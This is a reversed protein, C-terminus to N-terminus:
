QMRRLFFLLLAFNIVQILIATIIAGWIGYLPVLILVLVIRVLPSTFKIIYLEKKRMHAALVAGLPVQPIMLLIAVTYFQSYSVAELYIPFFLKYIWPALIVYLGMLPIVALFLKATKKFLKAKIAGLSQESFKPLSLPALNKFLNGIHECPTTALAYSALSVPGLFHWLLIKDLQSSVVGIANMLSLHKGYSITELDQKPKFSSKRITMWFCILRLFTYLCFYVLLIFFLNQTLVLTAVSALTAVIRISINYLARTKFLKKGEFFSEYVTLSDMFPLFAAAVLFCFVLTLNNNLFYFGALGLSLIGGAAGWRLRTKFAPALVGEYGRAVARVIATNMGSLSFVSLIGVLSLVYRYVGYTEKPLLNAFAVALLIGALSTIVQEATLWFGGRALYVMDTRTYKESWRLFNYIRQKPSM